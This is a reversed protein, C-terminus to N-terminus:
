VTKGKESWVEGVGRKWRGKELGDRKGHFCETFGVATLTELDSAEQKANSKRKRGGGKELRALWSRPDSFSFLCFEAM